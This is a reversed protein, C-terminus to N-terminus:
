RECGVCEFEHTNKLMFEGNVEDILNKHKLSYVNDRIEYFDRYSAILDKIKVPTPHVRELELLIAQEILSLNNKM